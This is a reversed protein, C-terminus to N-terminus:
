LLHTYEQYDMNAFLLCSSYKYRTNCAMMRSQQRSPLISQFIIGVPSIFTTNAVSVSAAHILIGALLGTILAILLRVSLPCLISVAFSNKCIDPVHLCVHYPYLQNRSLQQFSKGFGQLLPLIPLLM